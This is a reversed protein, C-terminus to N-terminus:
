AEVGVGAEAAEGVGAGVGRGRWENLKKSDIETQEAERGRPKEPQSALGTPLLRWLKSVCVLQIQQRALSNRPRPRPLPQDSCYAAGQRRRRLSSQGSEVGRAVEAAAAGKAQM